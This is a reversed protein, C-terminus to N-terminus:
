REGSPLVLGWRVAFARGHFECLTRVRAVPTKRRRFQSCATYVAVGGCHCFAPSRMHAMSRVINQGDVKM